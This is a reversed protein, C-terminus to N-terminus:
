QPPIWNVGALLSLVITAALYLGYHMAATGFEFDLAAYAALAGIGVMVPGVFILLYLEYPPPHNAYLAPIWCYVAWLLVYVVSTAAIRYYLTTGRYPVSEPDRLMAYGAIGLPPALAVAGLALLQWPPGENKRTALGVIVAVLVVTVVAAVIATIATQSLRTEERLIPTFVPRGTSDKPGVTEPAHIVIEPTAEPITIITKCKPCPGKKGAFKDSVQFAAKCGPCIVAIPM